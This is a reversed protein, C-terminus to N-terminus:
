IYLEIILFNIKSIFFTSLSFGFIIYFIFSRETLM